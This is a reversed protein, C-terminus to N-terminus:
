EAGVVVKAQGIVGLDNLGGVLPQAAPTEAERRDAKDAARLLQVLCKFPGDGTEKAFFISDEIGGAEVGVAPQELREQALLVRNEGVLQVVGADNVADPETFSLA